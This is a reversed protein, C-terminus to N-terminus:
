NGNANLTTVLKELAALREKLGAIEAEKEELKENLGQIAALVVGDADM